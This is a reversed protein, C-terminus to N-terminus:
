PNSVALVVIPLVILIIAWLPVASLIAFWSAACAAMLGLCAILALALKVIQRGTNGDTAGFGGAM